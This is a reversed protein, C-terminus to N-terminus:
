TSVADGLVAAAIRARSAASLAVGDLTVHLRHEAMAETYAERAADLARSAAPDNPHERAARSARALQARLDVLHRPEPM